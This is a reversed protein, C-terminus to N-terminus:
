SEKGEDPVRVLLRPGKRALRLAQGIARFEGVLKVPIFWPHALHFRTMVERWPRKAIYRIRDWGRGCRMAYYYDGVGHVPSASRLHGGAMRTGGEIARLHRISAAPEFWIEGGAALVRRAFETEFRYSVPPGFNEDFGGVALAHERRVALNGAMVNGIPVSKCSFFPFGEYARLGSAAGGYELDMPQEGPQLVQGAMCWARPHAKLAALHSALLTNGPIIDDDLFLVTEFRALLLGQNLAHATGPENLRQWRVAGDRAWGALCADTESRHRETQDMILIEYDADAQRMLASITDLLVQERRYTPIVVSLMTM